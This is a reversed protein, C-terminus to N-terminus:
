LVLLVVIAILILGGVFVMLGCGLGSVVSCGFAAAEADTM